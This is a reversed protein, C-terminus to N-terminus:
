AIKINVDGSTTEIECVDTGEDRPVDIDGSSTDVTFIKGSIFTGNVDGSSTEIHLRHADFKEFVLDGSTSDGRFTDTTTKSIGTEGSSSNREFHGKVTTGTIKADGSSTDSKLSGFTSDIVTHDGSASSMVAAGNIEVNEAYVNGSATSVEFTEAKTGLTKVDGSATSVKMNGFGFGSEIYVDGSATDINLDKDSKGSNLYVKIYTEETGFSFMKFNENDSRVYLINDRVDVTIKKDEDVHAEVRNEGDTKIFTVDESAVDVSIGDFDGVIRFSRDAYKTNSLNKLSFDDDSGACNTVFSIGAMLLGVIMCFGGAILAIKYTKKMKIEEQYPKKKM